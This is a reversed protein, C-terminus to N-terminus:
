EIRLRDAKMGRALEKVFRQEVVLAHGFWTPDAVHLGIWQRARQTRPWFLAISGEFTVHVDPGKPNAIEAAEAEEYSTLGVCEDANGRSSDDREYERIYAQFQGAEVCGYGKGPTLAEVFARTTLAPEGEKGYGSTDIFLPERATCRWGQPLYSGLYPILFRLSKGAKLQAKLDDLDEQEYVFPIKNERCARIACDRSLRRIVSLSLM